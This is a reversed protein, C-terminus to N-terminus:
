EFRSLRPKKMETNYALTFLAELAKLNVAVQLHEGEKKRILKHWLSVIELMLMRTDYEKRAGFTNPFMSTDRLKSNDGLKERTSGYDEPGTVSDLDIFTGDALVNHDSLYKHTCGLKHMIAANTAAQKAFWYCYDRATRLKCGFRENLRTLVPALEGSLLSDLRVESFIRLAAVPEDHLKNRADNRLGRLRSVKALTVNQGVQGVPLEKYELMAVVRHGGVGAHAFRESFDLDNEALSRSLIGLPDRNGNRHWQLGTGGYHKRHISQGVGKVDMYIYRNEGDTVQCTGLYASRNHRNRTAFRLSNSDETHQSRVLFPFTGVRGKKPVLDRLTEPLLKENLYIGKVPLEVANLRSLKEQIPDASLASSNERPKSSIEPRVSKARGIDEKSM